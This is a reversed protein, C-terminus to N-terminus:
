EADAIIFHFALCTLQNGSLDYLNVHGCYTGPFAPPAAPITFPLTLQREETAPLVCHAEPVGMKTCVNEIFIDQDLFFFPASEIV